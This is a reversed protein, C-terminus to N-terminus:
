PHIPDSHRFPPVMEGAGATGPAGNCGQNEEDDKGDLAFAEKIDAESYRQLERLIELETKETYFKNMIRKLESFKQAVHKYCKAWYEDPFYIQKLKTCITSGLNIEPYKADM